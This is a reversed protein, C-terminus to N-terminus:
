TSALLSWRSLLEIVDNKTLGFQNGHKDKDLSKKPFFIAKYFLDNDFMVHATSGDTFFVKFSPLAASTDIVNTIGDISAICEYNNEVLLMWNEREEDTILLKLPSM